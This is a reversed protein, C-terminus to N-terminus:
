FQPSQSPWQIRLTPRLRRVWPGGAEHRAVARRVGKDTVNCLRAAARYCGLRHLADIINLHETTTKLLYNSRDPSHSQPLGM